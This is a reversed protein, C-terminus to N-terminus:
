VMNKLREPAALKQFQMVEDFPIPRSIAYGQAVVCGSDRLMTLTSEDEVGEAVVIIRLERGMQLVSRVIGAAKPNERIASTFTRDIKLEAFPLRQLAELSAAGVGFDDMSIKPGLAALESLIAGAREFNSIRYTETIELTLCQPNLGTEELVESVMAVISYEHVLTASINVAVPIQRGGDEFAVGARCAEGLVHRTLHAMRGASECQKIFHDPPILGRAPDRWRVLAEVGILEGTQVLIKPQYVLFIEGNSLAADIRAQLSINWYLDEDSALESIEIPDYTENTREAASVAAALRRTVHPSPTVDVGFTIGVDVQTSGVHLPAAFLARLGELHERILGPEKEALTWAILHGPGVYITANPEAAKLRDVIRLLYEAHLEAALTKRVEEFRHIRAVIIAPVTEATVKDRELATFSPLNTDADVLRFSSKWRARIRFLAYTFLLLLASAAHVKIGLSGAVFVSAPICLFIGGYALYRFRRMGIWSALSLMALVALLVMYPNLQTTHGALLTEAAYIQVISRPVDIHGPINPANDDDRSSFGIVVKKGRLASLRDSEAELNKLQYIPITTLDFLYDVPQEADRYLASGALKASLNPLETTGDSVIYPVYWVYGLYNQWLDTGVEPVGAGIAPTSARLRDIGDLGTRYDRSLYANDGWRQLAANLRTDAEATSAQDFVIDVYVEETGANRLDDVLNALQERRQPFEPDALNESAGVYVIDGSAEFSNVQKQALWVFQDVLANVTLVCLVLAILGSWGAQRFREIAESHERKKPM